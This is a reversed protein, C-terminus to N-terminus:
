ISEEEAAWVGCADLADGVGTLDGGRNL